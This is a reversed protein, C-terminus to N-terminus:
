IFTVHWADKNHRNAAVVKNNQSRRRLISAFSGTTDVCLRIAM